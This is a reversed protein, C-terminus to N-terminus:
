AGRGESLLRAVTAEFVRDAESQTQGIKVLLLEGNHQISFRVGDSMRELFLVWMVRSGGSRDENRLVVHPPNGASGICVVEGRRVDRSWVDHPVCGQVIWEHTSM